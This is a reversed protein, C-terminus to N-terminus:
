FDMGRLIRWFTYTNEELKELESIPPVDEYYNDFRYADGIYIVAHIEEGENSYLFCKVPTSTFPVGKNLTDPVNSEKIGERIKEFYSMVDNSKLLWEYLEKTNDM